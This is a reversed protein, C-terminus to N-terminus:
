RVVRKIVMISDDMTEEVRYVANERAITFLSTRKNGEYTVLGLFTWDTLSRPLSDAQCISDFQATSYKGYIGNVMSEGNFVNDDVVVKTSCASLILSLILVIRKM